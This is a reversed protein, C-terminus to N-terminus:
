VETFSDKLAANEEPLVTAPFKMNRRIKSIIRISAIRPATGRHGYLM